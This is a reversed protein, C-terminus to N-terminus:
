NPLRNKMVLPQRHMSSTGSMMASNCPRSYRTVIPFSILRTVRINSQDSNSTRYYPSIAAEWSLDGLHLNERQEKTLAEFAARDNGRMSMGIQLYLQSLKPPTAGFSQITGFEDRQQLAQALAFYDWWTWHLWPERPMDDGLTEKVNLYLSRNFWVMIINMNNPVAYWLWQDLPDQDPDQPDWDPNPIRLEDLIGPWTLDIINHGKTDRLEKLHQNLPVIMGKDAYRKLLGYHIVDIVDPASGAAITTTVNRDESGGPVLSVKLKDAEHHRDFIAMQEVRAPNTDSGYTILHYTGGESADEGYFQGIFRNYGYWAILLVVIPTIIWPLESRTTLSEQAM